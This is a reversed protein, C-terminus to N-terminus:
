FGCTMQKCAFRYSPALLVGLHQTLTKFEVQSTNIPLPRSRVHSFYPKPLTYQSKEIKTGGCQENYDRNKIMTFDKKGNEGISIPKLSFWM